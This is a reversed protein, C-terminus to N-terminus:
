MVGQGIMYPRKAPTNMPSPARGSTWSNPIQGLLVLVSTLRKPVSVSLWPGFWNEPTGILMESGDRRGIMRSM